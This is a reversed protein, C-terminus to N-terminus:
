KMMSGVIKGVLLLAPVGVIIGGVIWWWAFQTPPIETFNATINKTCDMVITAFDDSGSLAGEWDVFNYGPSPIARLEVSEEAEFTYTTPYEPVTITNVM